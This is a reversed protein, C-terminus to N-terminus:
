NDNKRVADKYEVPFVYCTATPSLKKVEYYKKIVRVANRISNFSDPSGTRSSGDKNLWEYYDAKWKNNIVLLHFLNSNVRMVSISIM